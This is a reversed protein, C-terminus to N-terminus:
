DGVYISKVDVMAHSEYLVIERGSGLKFYNAFYHGRFDAYIFRISIKSSDKGSMKFLKPRFLVQKGSIRVSNLEGFFRGEKLTKPKYYAVEPSYKNRIQGDFMTYITDSWSLAEEGEHTVLLIIMKRLKGLERIYKGLKKRLHIDLHVFPEDLLLVKPEKALSAAISLRQQEGGSLDKSKLYRVSELGLLDILENRFFIRDENNLHLLNQEIIQECTFFQDLKFSQDVFGIESDGPMLKENEGLVPIKDLIIKGSNVSNIGAICKLLSSKGAGSPGVISVVEGPRINLNIQNFIFNLGDYSFSINQIELM